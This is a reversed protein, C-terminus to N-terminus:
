VGAASGFRVGRRRQNKPAVAFLATIVADDGALIMEILAVDRLVSFIRHRQGTGSPTKASLIRLLLRYCGQMEAQPTRRGEHCIVATRSIKSFAM